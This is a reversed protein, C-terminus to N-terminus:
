KNTRFCEAIQKYRIYKNCSDLTNINILKCLKVKANVLNQYQFLYKKNHMLLLHLTWFASLFSRSNAPKFEHAVRNVRKPKKSEKKQLIGKFNGQFKM